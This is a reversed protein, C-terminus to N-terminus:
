EPKIGTMMILKGYREYDSRVLASFQDVTNPVFDMGQSLNLETIEPTLSAATIATNLRGVREKPTNRPVFIGEWGSMEYGKIGSEDITPVSPLLPNRKVGTVALPRLKGADLMPRVGALSYFMFDIRGGVIDSLLTTGGKYPVHVFKVNTMQSLLEGSLHFSTGVGPSGFTITAPRNRALVILDKVDKASVSPHAILVYSFKHILIVPVLDQLSDYPMSIRLHPYSAISSGPAALITYGDPASKVVAENAITGTAGARNDVIVQQGLIDALKQALPRVMVDTISGPPFGIIMRAPKTPYSQSHSHEVCCSFLVIGLLLGDSMHPKYHGM